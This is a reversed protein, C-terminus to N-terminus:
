KSGVLEQINKVGNKEMFEDLFKLINYPLFPGKYIYGTYIQILNAGAQIKELASEPSDIGGVGIIPLKGRIKKYALRIIETARKELPKGSIGGTEINKYKSIVNRDIITNTLIVGALNLDDIVELIEEISQNSLDPALKIFTPIMFSGGIGKQIGSILKVFADKEQFNRLGPTNPSSINIVAYDSIPSLKLFSKIYDDITKEIPVVKTKGINIGRPLLRKQTQLITFVKECGPNNFGMRNILAKEKPYRFLRPKPNGAQEEATVTGVEIYGFGLRSFLPYLEGTKDFGAALGLPNRFNLGLLEFKLKESKYTTSKELYDFIFKKNFINLVNTAIKHASEPSFQFLIPKIFLEYMNHNSM